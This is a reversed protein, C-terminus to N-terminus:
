LVALAVVQGQSDGIDGIPKGVFQLGASIAPHRIQVVLGGEFGPAELEFSPNPFDPGVVDATQLLTLTLRENIM